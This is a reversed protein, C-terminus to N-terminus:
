TALREPGSPATLASRGSNVPGPRRPSTDRMDRNRGRAATSAASVATAAAAQEEEPPSGVASGDPGPRVVVAAAGVLAAGLEAAADGSGLTPVRREGIRQSPGAWVPPLAM